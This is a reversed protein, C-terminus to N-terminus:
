EAAIRPSEGAHFADLLTRRKKEAKEANAEKVPGFGRIDLPLRALAIAADRNRDPDKLVEAMDSEYQRILDREMRREATYGFPNLPTGRLRKMWVLAPLMREMGAGFARKAPRGDPGQRSLLPPALHYTLKLDGDFADEAKARSDLLLRAVEFEDKYALLKHYGLAVAEKVDSDAIQDVMARYRRALRASQYETLHKVRFAIRDELSSPLDVVDAALIKAVRAPNLASWRGIEFARQNEVVKAGNLEVARLLAERGIPVQGMQWSAGL